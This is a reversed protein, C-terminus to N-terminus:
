CNNALFHFPSLNAKSQESHYETPTSVYTLKEHAPSQWAPPPVQAHQHQYLQQQYVQQQYTAPNIYQPPNHPVDDLRYDDSQNLRTFRASSMTLPHSSLSSCRSPHSAPHLQPSQLEFAFPSHHLLIVLVGQIHHLASVRLYM